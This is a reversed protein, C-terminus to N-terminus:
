RSVRVTADPNSKCATLYGRVFACLGEYSGWGNPPSLARFRDPEALLLALGTQLPDILERAHTIGREDPRWLYEYLGAEKAMPALNHTANGEYVTV